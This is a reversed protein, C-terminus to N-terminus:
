HGADFWCSIGVQYFAGLGLTPPTVAECTVETLGTCGLFATQGISTVSKGIIVSQLSQCREFVNEGISTVSNGIIASTLMICDYFAGDVISEVSNPIEISRLRDCHAFLSHSILTLSNSLTVSVLGTCGWFAADGISTVSNPIEISTMHNCWRFADTIINTLSDSLNVIKISEAYELWPASTMEGSGVITLTSDETNLSWTLSDGCTGDYIEANAFSISALVALSLTFLKHTM